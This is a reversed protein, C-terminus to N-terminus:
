IQETIMFETITFGGGPRTQVWMVPRARGFVYVAEWCEDTSADIYRDGAKVGSNM